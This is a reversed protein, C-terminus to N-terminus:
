KQYIGQRNLGEEIAKLVSYKSPDPTKVGDVFITPTLVQGKMVKMALAFNNDIHQAYAENAVSARLKQVDIGEVNKAYEALNDITAWDTFENPQCNYLCDIFPFFLDKNQDYVGRAAMAAPRSGALFALTIFTFKIKGKDIYKKKIEPYTHTQFYRCDTCKLDEFVVVHVPAQHSGITPQGEVDIKVPVPTNLYVYGIGFGAVMLFIVSSVLVLIQHTKLKIRM